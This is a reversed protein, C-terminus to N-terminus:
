YFTDIMMFWYETNYKKHNCSVSILLLFFFILSFQELQINTQRTYEHLKDYHVFHWLTRNILKNIFSVKPLWEIYMWWSPAFIGMFNASTFWVSVFVFVIGNPVCSIYITVTHNSMKLLCRILMILLISFVLGFLYLKTHSMWMNSNSKFCFSTFFSFLVSAVSYWSHTLARNTLAAIYVM